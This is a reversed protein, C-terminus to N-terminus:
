ACLGRRSLRARGTRDCHAPRTRPLRRRGPRDPARERAPTSSSRSAATRSRRSCTTHRPRVKWPLRHTALGELDFTGAHEDMLGLLEDTWRRVNAQGMRVSLGKDFMTMMPMPDVAGGYVGVVSVTGGRRVIEMASHLAALRDLGAHEIMPKALVKPMRSAVGIVREAVPNGHAEMGVAEIVRDAGRGDTLDRIAGAVDKHDRLDVTEVGHREALDLREDVLDVGIVRGAGLVQASRTALQGVPGLEIVAVTKGPEIEAFKAAQWATPLIDSLYLYREDSGEAPLKIPGYHAQPVRVREAQGGPVAGYLSTYGFLAAGSDTERVQTTECQSQLGRSCMFCSGCSINFPVVVRDGPSLTGVEDGVEEVIGMFEHGLIDGPTLYPALVKYLHLDSGCIATSTVRVVADTAQEIRPDPVEKIEVQEIGQWTLARM